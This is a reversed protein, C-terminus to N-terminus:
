RSSESEAAAHTVPRVAADPSTATHHHLDTNSRLLADVAAALNPGATTVVNHAAAITLTQSDPLLGAAHDLWPAPAIPDFEGRVLLTPVGIGPLKPAIHDEVAHRLTAIIRRPRADRLDRALIPAQRWDEHPPDRLLRRVQGTMTAAAPDTTPGVLILAAVLDPRRV